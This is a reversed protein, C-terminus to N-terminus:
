SATFIRRCSSWNRLRRKGPFSESSIVTSSSALILEYTGSSNTHILLKHPLHRFFFPRCDNQKLNSEVTKTSKWKLATVFYRFTQSNTIRLTSFFFLATLHGLWFYNPFFPLNIVYKEGPGKRCTQYLHGYADHFGARLKFLPLLSSFVSHVRLTMGPGIIRGWPATHSLEGCKLIKSVACEDCIGACSCKNTAILIISLFLLHNFQLYRPIAYDLRSSNKESIVVEDAKSSDSDTIM